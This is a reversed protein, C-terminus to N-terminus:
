APAAVVIHNGTFIFRAFDSVLTAPLVVALHSHVFFMPHHFVNEFFEVRCALPEMISRRLRQIILRSSAQLQVFRFDFDYAQTM